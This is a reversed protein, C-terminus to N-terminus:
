GFDAGESPDCVEVLYQVRGQKPKISPGAVVRRGFPDALMELVEHSTTLSWENSFQVLAFPQGNNDEHVGAAGPTGIDDRVMVPWYDLPVDDLSAFPDVTAEVDWIPGFDRTVQKQLAASVPLLDALALESTESVLAVHLPLM